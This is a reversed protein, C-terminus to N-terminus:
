MVELFAEGAKIPYAEKGELEFLIEGELVYGFVPGSHLHPGAGPDDPPLVLLQVMGFANEPIFPPKLQLLDTVETKSTSTPQLLM